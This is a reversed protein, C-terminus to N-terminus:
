APLEPSRDLCPVEPEPTHKLPAPGLARRAVETPEPTPLAPEPPVAIVLEALLDDVARGWAAHDRHLPEGADTGPDSLPFALLITAEVSPAECLELLEDRVLRLLPTTRHGLHVGPVGRLPARSAPMGRPGVATGPGQKLTARAAVRQMGVQVTGPVDGGRVTGAGAPRPGAPQGDVLRIRRERSRGRAAALRRGKPSPRQCVPIRHRIRPASQQGAAASRHTSPIRYSLPM